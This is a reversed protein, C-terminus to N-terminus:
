KNPRSTIETRFSQFKLIRFLTINPSEPDDNVFEVVITQRELTLVVVFHEAFDFGRLDDHVWACWWFDLLQYQQAEFFIRQLSGCQLHKAFTGQKQVSIDLM